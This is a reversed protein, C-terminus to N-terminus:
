FEIQAERQATLVLFQKTPTLDERHEFRFNLKERMFLKRRAYWLMYEANAQLSLM